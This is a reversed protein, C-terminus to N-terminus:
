KGQKDIIAAIATAVRTAEEAFITKKGGPLAWMDGDRRNGCYPVRGSGVIIDRTEESM